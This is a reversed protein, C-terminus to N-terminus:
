TDIEGFRNKIIKNKIIGEYCFQSIVLDVNSEAAGFIKMDHLDPYVDNYLIIKDPVYFKVIIQKNINLSLLKLEKIQIYHRGLLIYHHVLLFINDLM